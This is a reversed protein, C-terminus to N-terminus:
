PNSKSVLAFVTRIEELEEESPPIDLIITRHGLEAYASIEAAVAEHSGVLYPCFTKYTHFPRMWYPSAEGAPREEQRSLKRHWHSDSVKMALAQTMRGKRDEPFRQEAVRWAEEPDDRAIIGVRIGTSLGPPRLGTGDAASPEPYKIATSGTKLAAALGADSSGSMLIEPRLEEPLEPTLKLNNARYYKGDFNLPASDELLCRIVRTYETLRDYREDHPTADDLALLDNRFGGAIMNLCVQRGHLFALTTVMKAVSYPHMYAPQVAILPSITETHQIIAQSVLWPDVIGNDAYVLLGRCGAQESWRAVNVIRDLYTAPDADKSSCCTSYVEFRGREPRGAVDPGSRVNREVSSTKEIVEASGVSAKM